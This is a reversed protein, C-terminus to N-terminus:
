AGLLAFKAKNVLGGSAQLASLLEKPTKGSAAVEKRGALNKLADEYGAQRAETLAAEDLPL